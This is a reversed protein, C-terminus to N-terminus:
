SSATKKLIVRLHMSIRRCKARKKTQFIELTPHSENKLRNQENESSKKGFTNEQPDDMTHHVNQIPLLPM